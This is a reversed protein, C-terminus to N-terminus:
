VMNGAGYLMGNHKLVSIFTDIKEKEKSAETCKLDREEEVTCM